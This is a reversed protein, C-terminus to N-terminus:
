APMLQIPQGLIKEIMESQMTQLYQPVFESPLFEFLIRNEVWFEIASFPVGDGQKRTLVRWGQRQGIQEIQEQTTPVSIAAHNAVLKIPEAHLVQASEADTGPVWVDGEKFVVIHTGHKDFPMVLYSGPTFFKYVKGNLVEALATAVQLPNHADISIHLIM